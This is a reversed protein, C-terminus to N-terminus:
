TGVMADKRREYGRQGQNEYGLKAERLSSKNWRTQSAPKWKASNLSTFLFPSIGAYRSKWHDHSVFEKLSVGHPNPITLLM